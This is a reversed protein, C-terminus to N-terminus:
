FRYSGAFVVNVSHLLFGSPPGSPNTAKGLGLSYQAGVSMTSNETLYGLAITSGLNDIRSKITADSDQLSPASSLDTFFGFRLPWSKGLYYETGVAGNLTLEQRVTADGVRGEPDHIQTFTHPLNVSVDGSLLWKGPIEYAIGLDSRIPTPSDLKLGSLVTKASNTGTIIEADGTVRISYYPRVTVGLKLRDNIDYKAGLIPLLGGYSADTSQFQQAVPPGAARAYFEQHFTRSLFYLSGGVLLRDTLAQGYSPGIWLVQNTLQQIFFTSSLDKKGNFAISDPLYISFAFTRNGKFKKLFVSSTPIVQTASVSYDARNTPSLAIANAIKGATWRFATATVSITTHSARAIGSPNYFTGDPGESLATYAGAIGSAQEGLPYAEYNQDDAFGNSFSFLFVSFFLLSVLYRRVLTTM